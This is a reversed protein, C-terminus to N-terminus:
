HSAILGAAVKRAHSASAKAQKFPLRVDHDSRCAEELASCLQSLKSFGLIAALSVLAHAQDAIENGTEGM